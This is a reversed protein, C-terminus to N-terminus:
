AAEEKLGLLELGRATLISNVKVELVEAIVLAKDVGIAGREGREARGLNGRDVPTGRRSCEDALERTTLRKRRRAARLAKGKIAPNPHKRGQSRPASTNPM